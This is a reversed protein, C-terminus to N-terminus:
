AVCILRRIPLTHSLNPRTVIRPLPSHSFREEWEWGRRKTVRGLGIGGEELIADSVHKTAVVVDVAQLCAQWVWKWTAATQNEYQVIYVLYLIPNIFQLPLKMPFLIASSM